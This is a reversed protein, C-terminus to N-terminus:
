RGAEDPEFLPEEEDYKAEEEDDEDDDNLGFTEEDLDEDDEIPKQKPARKSM